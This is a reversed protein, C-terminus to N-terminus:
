VILVAPERGSWARARGLQLGGPNPVAPCQLGAMEQHEQSIQQRLATIQRNLDRIEQRDGLDRPDLVNKLQQLQRIEAEQSSIQSRLPGCQANEGPMNQLAGLWWNDDGPYYFLVDTHEDGTFDGTWIPRGDDFGTTDGVDRFDMTGSVTQGLYWHHRAPSYHLLETGPQGQFRGLWTNSPSPYISGYM